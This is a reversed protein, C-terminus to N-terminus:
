NYFGVKKDPEHPAQIMGYRAEYKAINDQLASVLRKAHVPSTIVRSRVRAKPAQPQVYIFDIVIENDTHGIMALNAYVGQATVDDIEIQMQPAGNVKKEETM